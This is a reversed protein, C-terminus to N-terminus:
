RRSVVLYLHSLLLGFNTLSVAGQFALWTNWLAERSSVEDQGLNTWRAVSEQTISFKLASAMADLFRLNDRQAARGILYYGAGFFLSWCVMVLMFRPLSELSFSLYRLIPWAPWRWPRERVWFAFRLRRAEALCELEEEIQNLTSFRNALREAVTLRANLASRASQGSGFWYAVDKIEARLERFRARLHKSYEVGLFLSEATVEAEHQLAIAELSTTPTRSSLLEKAELALVAAHLAEEPTQAASLIDRSRELLRDAAALLRGPASHRSESGNRRVVTKVVRRLRSQEILLHVSGLPKRVLCFFLGRRRLYALNEQWIQRGQAGLKHGVTVLVRRGVQAFLSVDGRGDAADRYRLYSLHRMEPRFGEIDRLPETQDPFALYIDEFSAHLEGVPAGRWRWLQEFGGWTAAALSRYGTRYAAYGALLCYEREEDVTLIVKTRCLQHKHECSGSARGMAARVTTRLGSPDFAAPFFRAAGHLPRDRDDFRKLRITGIPCGHWQRLVACGSHDDVCEGTAEDRRLRSNPAWWFWRVEPFSLVLWAVVTELTPQYDRGAEYNVLPDWGWRREGLAEVSRDHSTFIAPTGLLAGIVVQTECLERSPIATLAREVAEYCHFAARTGELTSDERIPLAVIVLRDNHQRENPAARRACATAVGPWSVFLCHQNIV